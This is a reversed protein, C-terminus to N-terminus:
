APQALQNALRRALQAVDQGLHLTFTRAQRCLTELVNVHADLTPQDWRDVSEEMLRALAVARPLPKLTSQAQRSIHPAFLVNVRRPAAWRGNVLRQGSITVAESGQRKGPAAAAVWARLGPLLDFSGPRIGIDGPTALAYVGDPRAHLLVVDNALLEWGALLLSLGTTTKGSQSPGVILVCQEERAAAFAHALYYGRRRLLPALSTFTIDEFRGHVMASPTIVGQVVPASGVGAPALPATVLAGDHYHLLAQGDAAAYVSLIRQGHPLADADSFYPPAEPLSPLQPASTLRLIIDPEGAPALWGEFLQRWQRRIPEDPSQLELSLDHLQLHM